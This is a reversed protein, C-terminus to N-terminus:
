RGSWGDVLRRVITDASRGDGYLDRDTVCSESRLAESVARSIEDPDSGALRNARAEVLEIWETEDRLTVCPVGAFYAEKQVGGSDTLILKAANELALMGLYGVPEIVRVTELVHDLMGAAELRSRTRPHLPLVVDMTDAVRRLGEFVGALRDRDDTNEQRHVTALAFARDEVGAARLHESAVGTQEAQERYFIAADFMVDGCREIKEDEIGERRLNSVAVDTPAFLMDSCHDTLVRNIEEPMARNFSRLGAEVHAVGIGLKAAALAAAITSNTDGYVLVWDPREGEFVEALGELMRGTMAGHSVGSIGLNVDPRPISLEEFFVGSMNEDYHQGTHVLIHRLDGARLLPDMSRAVM